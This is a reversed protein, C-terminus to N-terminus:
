KTLVLRIALRQKPYNLNHFAELFYPLSHEKNRVFLAVCITPPLYGEFRSENFPFFLKSKIKSEKEQFTIQAFTLRAIFHLLWVFLLVMM